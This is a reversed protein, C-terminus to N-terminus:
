GKGFLRSRYVRYRYYFFCGVCFGALAVGAASAVALSLGWGVAELGLLFALQAGGLLIAAITNNFRMLRPDEVEGANLAEANRKALLRRGVQFILSGRRGFLVASLVVLFLATTLLPQQLILGGVVGVVLVWRNLQVIPLPIDRDREVCDM